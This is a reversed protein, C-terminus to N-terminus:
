LIELAQARIVLEKQRFRKALDERYSRWWAHDLADVMVEVVVIDDLHAGSGSQWIGEAPSRTYATSGGFRESLEKLVTDFAERGFTRGDNDRVPLLIQVLQM